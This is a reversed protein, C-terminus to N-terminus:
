SQAFQAAAACSETGRAYGCSQHITDSGLAMFRKRLMRHLWDTTSLLALLTFPNPAPPPTPPPPSPTINNEMIRLTLVRESGYACVRSCGDGVGLREEERLEM